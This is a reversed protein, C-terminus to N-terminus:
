SRRESGPERKGRWHAMLEAATPRVTGHDPAIIEDLRHERPCAISLWLVLVWGAVTWWAPGSLLSFLVLSVAAMATLVRKASLHHVISGCGFAAACLVLWCWENAAVRATFSHRDWPLSVGVAVAVAVVAQAIRHRPWGPRWYQHM